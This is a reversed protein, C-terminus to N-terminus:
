AQGLALGLVRNALAPPNPNEETRGLAYDLFWDMERLYRQNPDEGCAKIAGNPLTLAGTGFDALLTGERCFFEAQRRYSRGFYDLHLECLLGPYRAIYVSLDDSDIELHSFRGRLNFCAEPLGFLDALYDWEHILDLTVGGGMASKASYVTRYDANPRWNPLYSSCIVRASYPPYQELAQKLAAYLATWRMPAAVYARQGPGLGLAELSEAPQRLIPKEIFRAGARGKVQQLAAGHLHTPGTIFIADFDEGPPLARLERRVLGATEPPLPADTARLASAELRIGRGGCLAHLNALHRRGISGLGIFLVKLQEAM